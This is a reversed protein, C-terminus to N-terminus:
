QLYKENYLTMLQKGTSARTVNIRITVLNDQREIIRDIIFALGSNTETIKGSTFDNSATTNEMTKIALQYAIVKEKSSYKGIIQNLLFVMITFGIMFVTSAILVEMLSFGKQNRRLKGFKM